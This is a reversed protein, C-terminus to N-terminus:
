AKSAPWRPDPPDRRDRAVQPPSSSSSGWCPLRSGYAPPPGVAPEYRNRSKSPGSVLPPGWRGLLRRRRSFSSAAGGAHARGRPRDAALTSRIGPRHRSDPENPRGPRTRRGRPVMLFGISRRRRRSCKAATAPRTAAAHLPRPPDRRSRRLARAPSRRVRHRSRGHTRLGRHLRVDVSAARARLARRRRRAPLRPVGFKAAMLIVALNENVGGLRCSDIQCFGIASRRCCSSSSSATRATSAPRSASRRSQGACDGRAGARRGPEDAGRDVVPQVALAGPRARDSRRRGLAPQRRDDAQLRARHRRARPRRAPRRRGARRRGQGQLAALRRRTAERCLRRVEEDSYGMWGASTTYAPYGTACFSRRATRRTRERQRELMELAEDPTLADTIYRFDICTVIERPTMDALLKWVPKREAKAHLDWVANVIAALALHIVGKEPGLWRLQSDSALAEGSPPPTPPHDRRADARRRAARVGPDGAVCVENGRGITFTFGHGELGGDTKLIVYAASYDPDTHVADTGANVLSTPFRLDLVDFSKIRM